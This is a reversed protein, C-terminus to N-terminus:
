QPERAQAGDSRTPRGEGRGEGLDAMSTWGVAICVTRSQRRGGSLWSCFGQLEAAVAATVPPRGPPAAAVGPM